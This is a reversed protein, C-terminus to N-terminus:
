PREWDAMPGSSILFLPNAQAELNKVISYVNPSRQRLKRLLHGWEYDLQGTTARIPALSASTPGVKAKDFNYGRRRSEAYVQALFGNIAYRPSDHEYFRILQPHHRYGKTQGRIVAQALLAERWLATLGKTDLFRPHLTWLRM